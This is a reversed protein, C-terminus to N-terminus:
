MHLKKKMTSKVSKKKDIVVFIAASVVQPIFAMLSWTLDVAGHLYCDTVAELLITMLSSFCLAATMIRLVGFGVRKIVAICAVLLMAGGATIPLALPLYWGGHPTIEAIGALAILLAAADIVTLLVPRRFLRYFPLVVCVWVFAMACVVYLSWDIRGSILYECMLCTLCPLLAFLTILLTTMTRDIGHVLHDKREPYAPEAEFDFPKGPNIVETGCLPCCKESDRLEVGCNVCYSM